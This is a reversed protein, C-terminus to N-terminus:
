TTIMATRALNSTATEAPPRAPTPRGLGTSEEASRNWRAPRRAAAATATSSATRARAAPQYSRRIRAATARREQKSLATQRVGREHLRQAIRHLERGARDPLDVFLWRWERRQRRRVAQRPGVRWQRLQQSQASGGLSGRNWGRWGHRCDRRHQDHGGHELNRGGRLSQHHGRDLHDRRWHFWGIRGASCGDSYWLRRAGRCRWRRWRRKGAVGADPLAPQEVAGDPLARLQGADFTCAAALAAILCVGPSSFAKM